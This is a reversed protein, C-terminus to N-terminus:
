AYPSLDYHDLMSDPHVPPGAAADRVAVLHGPWRQRDERAWQHAMRRHRKADAPTEAWPTYNILDWPLWSEGDDGPCALWLATRTM